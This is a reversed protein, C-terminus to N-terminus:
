LGVKNGIQVQSHVTIRSMIKNRKAPKLATSYSPDVLEVDLAAAIEDLDPVSKTKLVDETYDGCVAHAVIKAKECLALYDSHEKDSKKNLKHSKDKCLAVEADLSYESHIIASVVADYGAKKNVNVHRYNYSLEDDKQVKEIDFIVLGGQITDYLPLIHKSNGKM